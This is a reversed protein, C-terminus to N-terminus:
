RMAQCSISVSSNALRAMAEARFPTLVSDAAWVAKAWSTARKVVAIPLSIACRSRNFRSNSIARSTCSCRNRLPKGRHWTEVVASLAPRRSFHTSVVVIKQFKGAAPECDRDSVYGALAHAGREHHGAEFRREAGQSRDDLVRRIQHSSDVGQNTLCRRRIAERRQEVGLVIRRRAAQDVDVRTM